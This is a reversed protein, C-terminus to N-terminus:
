TKRTGAAIQKDRVAKLRAPRSFLRELLERTLGELEEAESPTYPDVDHVADNGDLLQIDALDALEADVVGAAAMEKIRQRAAQNPKVGTLRADTDYIEKTAVDITKRFMAGAAEAFGKARCSCAERFIEEVRKSLSAPPSPYYTDYLEFPAPDANFIGNQATFQYLDEKKLSM